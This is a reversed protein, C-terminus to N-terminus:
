TIKKLNQFIKFNQFYKLFRVGIGQVKFNKLVEYFLVAIWVLGREECIEVRFYLFLHTFSEQTPLFSGKRASSRWFTDLTKEDLCARNILAWYHTVICLYVLVNKNQNDLWGKDWITGPM